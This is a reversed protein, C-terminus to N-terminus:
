ILDRLKKAIKYVDGCGLTIILDGEKANEKLYETIEDFNRDHYEKETEGDKLNDIFYCGEIKEGLDKAYIHISMPEELNISGLERLVSEYTAKEQEKYMNILNAMEEPSLSALYKQQEITLDSM